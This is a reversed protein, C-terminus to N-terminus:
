LDPVSFVLGRYITEQEIEFRCVYDFRAGQLDRKIQPTFNAQFGEREEDTPAACESWADSLWNPVELPMGLYRRDVDAITLRRYPNFGDTRELTAPDVDVVIGRLGNKFSVTYAGDPIDPLNFHGSRYSNFVSFGISGIILVFLVNKILKWM